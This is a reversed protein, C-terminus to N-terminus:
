NTPARKVFDYMYGDSGGGFYNNKPARKVFDYMYGDSGGGFYNNKPARKAFDYMYGDSGGGFYDNKPVRKVFDYMHGDSGSGFYYNKPSRANTKVGDKDNETDEFSKEGSRKVFDFLYGDSGFGHGWRDYKQFYFTEEFVISLLLYWYYLQTALLLSIDFRKHCIRPTKLLKRGHERM